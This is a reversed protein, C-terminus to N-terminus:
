PAPPISMGFPNATADESREVPSAAPSGAPHNREALLARANHTGSLPVWHTRDAAFQTGIEAYRDGTSKGDIAYRQATSIVAIYQAPRGRTGTGGVQDLLGARKAEGIREAIRQPHVDFLAALEKRPISVKGHDNMRYAFYMLLLKCATGVNSSIIDQVWKDRIGARPHRRTVADV